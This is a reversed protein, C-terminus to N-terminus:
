GAACGAQGQEVHRCVGGALEPPLPPRTQAAPLCSARVSLLVASATWPGLGAGPWWRVQLQQRAHALSSPLVDARCSPCALVFAGSASGGCGAAAASAAFPAAEDGASSGNVAATGKGAEGNADLASGGSGGERRIGEEKLKLPAMSRYEDWLQRERQAMRDQQWHWWPAFCAAHYAHYCGLRLLAPGSGRGGGCCGGGGSGGGGGNSGSRGAALLPELCFACDGEPENAATLLDLATEALHGLQLEGALQAAEAALAAQM